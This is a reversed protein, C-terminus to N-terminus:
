SHPDAREMWHMSSMVPMTGAYFALMWVFSTSPSNLLGRTQWEGADNSDASVPAAVHLEDVDPLSASSSTYRKGGSAQRTEEAAPHFFREERGKSNATLIPSLPTELHVAILFPSGRAGCQPSWSELRRKYAM